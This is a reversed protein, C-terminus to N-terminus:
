KEQDEADSDTSADEAEEEADEEEVGVGRAKRGRTDEEGSVPPASGQIAKEKTKLDM